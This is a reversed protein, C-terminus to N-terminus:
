VCAESGKHFAHWPASLSNNNEEKLQYLKKYKTLAVLFSKNQKTNM